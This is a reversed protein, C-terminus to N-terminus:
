SRERVLIAECGKMPAPVKKVVLCDTGAWVVQHVSRKVEVASAVDRVHYKVNETLISCHHRVKSSKPVLESDSVFLVQHALVVKVVSPAEKIGINM